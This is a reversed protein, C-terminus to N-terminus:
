PPRGGPLLRGGPPRGTHSPWGRNPTPCVGGSVSFRASHMRSSHKRTLYWSQWQSLSEEHFTVYYRNHAILISFINLWPWRFVLKWKKTVKGDLHQLFIPVLCDSRLDGSKTYAANVEFGLKFRWCWTVISKTPHVWPTFNTSHLSCMVDECIVLFLFISM